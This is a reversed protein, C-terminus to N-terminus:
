RLPPCRREEPGVVFRPMFGGKRHFVRANRLKAGGHRDKSHTEQGTKLSSIDTPKDPKTDVSAKELLSAKLGANM